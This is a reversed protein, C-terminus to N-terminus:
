ELNFTYMYSRRLLSSCGERHIVLLCPSLSCYRSRVSLLSLYYLIDISYISSYYCLCAWLGIPALLLSTPESTGVKICVVSIPVYLQLFTRSANHYQPCRHILEYVCVHMYRISYMIFTYMYIHTVCAFTCVFMCSYLCPHMCECVYMDYMIYIYIYIIVYM